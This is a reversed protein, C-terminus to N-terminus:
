STRVNQVVRTCTCRAYWLTVVVLVVLEDFSGV